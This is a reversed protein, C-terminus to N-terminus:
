PVLLLKTYGAPIAVTNSGGYPNAGATLTLASTPVTFPGMYVALDKVIRMNTIYGDYYTRPDAGGNEVGIYLTTTNNIFDTTNPVPNPDGLAVGALQGNVYATLESNRRVFAVHAWENATPQLFYNPDSFWGILSGDEISCGISTSPFAGIAFVRQFGSTGTQKQWWEITFDGTGFAWSSDGPLTL